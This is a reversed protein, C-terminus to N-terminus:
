ELIRSYKFQKRHHVLKIKRTNKSSKKATVKKGKPPRRSASPAQVTSRNFVEDESDSDISLRASRREEQEQFRNSQPPRQSQSPQTLAGQLSRLSSTSATPQRALGSPGPQPEVSEVSEVPEASDQPLPTENEAPTEESPSPPIIHEM